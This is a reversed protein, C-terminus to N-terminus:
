ARKRQPYPHSLPAVVFLLAKGILFILVKRSVKLAKLEKELADKEMKLRDVESELQNVRDRLKEIEADKSELIERTGKEVGNAMAGRNEERIAALDREIRELDHKCV